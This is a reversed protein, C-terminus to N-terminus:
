QFFGQTCPHLRNKEFYAAGIFRSYSEVPVGSEELDANALAVVPVLPSM